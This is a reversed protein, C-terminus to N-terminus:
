KALEVLFQLLLWKRWATMTAPEWSANQFSGAFFWGGALPFLHGTGGVMVVCMNHDNSSAVYDLPILRKLFLVFGAVDNEPGADKGKTGLPRWLVGQVQRLVVADRNGPFVKRTGSVLFHLQQVLTICRTIAILVAFWANSNSCTIKRFIKIPNKLFTLLLQNPLFNEPFIELIWLIKQLNQWQHSSNLFSM